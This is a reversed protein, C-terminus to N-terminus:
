VLSHVLFNASYPFDLANIVTSIKITINISTYHRRIFICFINTSTIFYEM